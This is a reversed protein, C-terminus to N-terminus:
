IERNKHFIHQQNTPPSKSAKEKNKSSSTAESAALSLCGLDKLTRINKRSFSVKTHDDM